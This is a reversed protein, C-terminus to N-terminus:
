LAWLGCRLRPRVGGRGGSGAGRIALADGGSLTVRRSRSPPSIWSYRAAAYRSRSQAGWVGPQQDATPWHSSMTEWLKRGYLALGTAGVPDSWWQFLEESPVSWGLDNGPAAIYGDLSLNMGFTLTRM